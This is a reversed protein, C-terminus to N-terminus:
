VHARGIKFLACLVPVIVLAVFLSASLTIILTKPLFGMFEGIIDPWFLLPFFAALTTLTSAIIPMAVEGTAHIAASVNDYGEEIHRYINEVVVVANDVLMGLALILAFLVVTNMSMGILQMVVFSLLMSLPISVAVFSANRAGLFFLLVALVLILGSIINNELSSVMIGIEESQDGTIAIETSPPFQPRMEEIVAKVADSTEIVNEGARKVIDLTVVPRGNLRAYSEREEFGYDVNAVDRVYIPGGDRTAIVIDEIQEPNEYEGAVRVPYGLTGVDMVGGPVDVHEGWIADIVDTYTVSYYKLRPLDVDVHVRRELGGSVRVDLLAPIQELREELEEAVDKIRVLDYEGSVNVQMIPFESLNIESVVPDDDLDAPLEPKALDVKETVERLAVEMDMGSEFEATVVSYGETSTSTLTTVDPITNVEDEILRTILTEVDTPTAGPYVTSVAIIPITIEPFAEKPVSRYATIGLVGIIFLLVLVSTPHAVAFSTIRFERHKGHGGSKKTVGDSTGDGGAPVAGDQKGNEPGTQWDSM